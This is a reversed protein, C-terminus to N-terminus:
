NYYIRDQYIWNSPNDLFEDIPIEFYKLSQSKPEVFVLKASCYPCGDLEEVDDVKLKNYSLVGFYSITKSEKSYVPEGDGDFGLKIKQTIACHSLLYKSTAFVSRKKNEKEKIWKIIWGTTDHMNKVKNFNVYGYGLVHFHLGVKEYRYFNNCRHTHTIVVGGVVGVEKLLKLAKARVSRYQNINSIDIKELQPVSVVVHKVKWSSGRRGRFSNVRREIKKAKVTTVKDLCKPCQLRGCNRKIRKIFIQNKGKTLDNHQRYDPCGLFLYEQCNSYPEGHGALIFKQYNKWDILKSLTM